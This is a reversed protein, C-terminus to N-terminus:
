SILQFDILKYTCPSPSSNLAFLPTVDPKSTAAEAFWHIAILDNRKSPKCPNSRTPYCRYALNLFSRCLCILQMRHNTQDRSFVYFSCKPTIQRTATAIQTTCILLFSFTMCQVFDHSLLIMTNPFLISKKKKLIFTSKRIGLSKQHLVGFKRISRTYLHIKM